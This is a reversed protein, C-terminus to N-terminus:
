RISRGLREDRETLLDLLFRNRSDRAESLKRRMQQQEQASPQRGYVKTYVDTIFQDDSQNREGFESSSIIGAEVEVYTKGRQLQTEWTTVERATAARGAYQEYWLTIQEAPSLPSNPYNTGGPPILAANPGADILRIDVREAPGNISIPIERDAKLVLGGRDILQADVAYRHGPQLKAPDIDLRYSAPWRRPGDLDLSQVTQDNWQPRTADILRIRLTMTPTLTVRVRSTVNGSVSLASDSLTVNVNRLRDDRAGRVLLVVQGRDDARLALETDLEYLDRGVHGVQYGGVTVITEGVKLGARQAPSGPLVQRIDAGTETNEVEVGLNYQRSSRNRASFEQQLASGNWGRQDTQRDRVRQAKAAQPNILLATGLLLGVGVSFRTPQRDCWRRSQRNLM